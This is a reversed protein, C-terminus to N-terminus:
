LVLCVGSGIDLQNVGFSAWAMGGFGVALTVFAIIANKNIITTILFMFFGQSVLGKFLLCLKLSLVCVCVCVCVSKFLLSVLVAFHNVFLQVNM